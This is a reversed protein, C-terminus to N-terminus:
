CRRHECLHAAARDRWTWRDIRGAAKKFAGLARQTQDQAWLLRGHRWHTMPGGTEKLAREYTKLAKDVEGRAEQLTALNHLVAPDDPASVLAQVFSEHAEDLQGRHKLVVGLTNRRRRLANPEEGGEAVAQRLLEEAQAFEGLEDLCDALHEMLHPEAESSLTIARRFASACPSWREALMYARGLVAWAASSEPLREVAAHAKEMADDPRKLACALRAGLLAAAGRTRTTSDLEDIQRELRESLGRREEAHGDVLMTQLAGLIADPQEPHREMAELFRERAIKFRGSYLAAHGETLAQEYPPLQPRPAPADRRGEGESPRRSGPAAVSPEDGTEPAGRESVTGSAHHSPEADESGCAGPLLLAAALGVFIVGCRAM